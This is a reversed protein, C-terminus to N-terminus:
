VSVKCCKYKWRRDEARNSHYSRAGVIIGIVGPDMISSCEWNMPKDLENVEQSWKCDDVDSSVLGQRCKFTWQRDERKNDHVSTIENIYEGAGCEFNVDGDYNNPNQAGTKYVFNPILLVFLCLKM